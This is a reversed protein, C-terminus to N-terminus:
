EESEPTSLQIKGTSVPGEELSLRISGTTNLVTAPLPEGEPIPSGIPVNYRAAGARTRVIRSAGSTRLNRFRSALRKEEGPSTKYRDDLIEYIPSVDNYLDREMYGNEIDPLKFGGRRALKRIEVPDMTVRIRHNALAKPDYIDIRRVIGLSQLRKVNDGVTTDPLGTYGSMASKSIRAVGEKGSMDSIAELVRNM